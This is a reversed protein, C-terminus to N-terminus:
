SHLAVKPTQGFPCASKFNASLYMMTRVSHDQLQQKLQTSKLFAKLQTLM